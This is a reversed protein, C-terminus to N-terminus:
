RTEAKWLALRRVWEAKLDEYSVRDCGDSLRLFGLYRAVKVAREHPEIKRNKLAVRIWGNAEEFLNGIAYEFGNYARWVGHKQRDFVQGCICHFGNRMDLTESNVREQWGPFNEDLWRWGHDVRTKATMRGIADPKTM